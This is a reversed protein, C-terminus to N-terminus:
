YKDNSFTADVQLPWRDGWQDAPNIGNRQSPLHSDQWGEGSWAHGKQVHLAYNEKTFFVIGEDLIVSWCLAMHFFAHWILFETGRVVIKNPETKNGGLHACLSLICVKSEWKGHSLKEKPKYVIRNIKSWLNLPFLKLVVILERMLKQLWNGLSTPQIETLSLCIM